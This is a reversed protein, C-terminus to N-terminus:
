SRAPWAIDGFRSIVTEFIERVVAMSNRASHATAADQQFHLATLDIGLRRLQPEVFGELMTVYRESNVIVTEENDNEFFYPGVIGFAGVGCWVTVKPSHLPMEHLEKPNVPSWYRMNQKNVFGSLHFRAEDTMLMNNLIDPNTNLNVAIGQGNIQCWLVKTKNDRLAAYEVYKYKLYKYIVLM